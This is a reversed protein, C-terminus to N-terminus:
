EVVKPVAFFDFQANPANALVRQAYNGDTVEDERQRLAMAEVSTMAEVGETDVESLQEVWSLIANLEGQLPAVQAEDLRIRALHAIRKVTAADISM